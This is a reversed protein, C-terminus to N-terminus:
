EWDCLMFLYSVKVKMKRRSRAKVGSDRAM